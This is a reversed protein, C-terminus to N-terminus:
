DDTELEGDDGRCSTRYLPIYDKLAENVNEKLNSFFNGQHRPIIARITTEINFNYKPQFEVM